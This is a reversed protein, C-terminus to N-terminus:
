DHRLAEIPDLKAAKQAPIYGFFIGVLAASAFSLIVSYPVIVTRMGGIKGFLWSGGVGVLVGILGGVLSLMLAETLFQVQIDAPTAGIAQRLGIERTRETVSVLMINMIGIGGVVLSIGAVWALLTRFSATTSERTQIIDNQTQIVFDPADLTVKHRRALLLQIQTVVDNMNANKDVSVFITRVRDGIVRAFQSPTFKQFVTKIPAYIMQDFNTNSSGSKPALVGIVVLKTNNVTITQGIPDSNGFLQTAISAGLVVVKQSLALENENVFRGSALQVDRVTTYDPNTGVISIGTLTVAGYKVTVDAQQEVSVGAIGSIQSHIADVDSYVLGGSRNEPQGPGGRQFNASIFLLNSGLGNIAESITAETGASVAMMVIVAAVGIIVGLMTLLARLKNSLISELASHFLENFNM